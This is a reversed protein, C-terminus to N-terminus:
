TTLSFFSLFYKQPWKVLPLNIVYIEPLVYDNFLVSYVMELVM